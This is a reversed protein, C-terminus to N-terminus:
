FTDRGAETVKIIYILAYYNPRNDFATGSGAADVSGSVSHNHSVDSVYQKGTIGFEVYSLGHDSTQGSISAAHGIDIASGAACLNNTALKHRHTNSSVSVRSMGHTHNPMNEESLTQSNKGGARSGNGYGMIFKDRLDPITLGNVTGGQCQYWGKLTVNDQWSTGDYMLILGKPCFALNLMDSALLQSGTQITM